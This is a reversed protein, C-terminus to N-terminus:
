STSTTNALTNGTGVTSAYTLVLQASPGPPKPGPNTVDVAYATPGTVAAGGDVLLKLFAGLDALQLGQEFVPRDVEPSTHDPDVGYAIVDNLPSDHTSVVVILRTLRPPVFSIGFGSPREVYLSAIFTM